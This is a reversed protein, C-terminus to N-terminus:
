STLRSTLSIKVPGYGHVVEATTPGFLYPFSPIDPQGPGNPCQARYFVASMRLQRGMELV